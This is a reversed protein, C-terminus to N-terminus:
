FGYNKNIPQAAKTAYKSAWDVLQAHSGAGKHVAPHIKDKARIFDDMVLPRLSLQDAQTVRGSRREEELLESVPQFAAAVCLNKLDSGSMGPTINAIKNLDVSSDTQENALIVRLIHARQAETPLDVLVRRPLRRLAAEDLDFPRNTACMVLVRSDHKTTLGDWLTLFQNKLKLMVEHEFSDRRGLISDAEDIFIVCPALRNAVSFLAKVYKEGDGFWKSMIDAMNINLFNAGSETAVAKALLTKGTGPPGFLLLGKVPRALNGRKFLEPRRLPLIVLEELQAKADDLAGIDSFRVNIDKPQVLCGM